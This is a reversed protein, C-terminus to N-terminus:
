EKFYVGKTEEYRRMISTPYDALFDEKTRCYKERFILRNYNNYGNEVAELISNGRGTAVALDWDEGVSVMKGDKLMADYLWLPKWNDYQIEQEENVKLNFARIAVGYRFHEVPSQLAMIKEFYESPGHAMTMETFLSDYGFRNSCFEGFYIGDDTVYLSIDFVFIGTHEKAMDYVKKPFAIRNIEDEIDTRIILNTGCGVQPGNNEGDGVNKTEIDITTYVPEGNWFVIQPTIEVPRILKEKIVIEGRSYEKENKDLTALIVLKSQEVDDPGVVTSVHDGESQLVLPVESEEVLKRAEEVTKVKQHPIIQIDTYHEEVFNMAEESEKELDFDATTNFIGNTLGYKLLQESYYWLNNRDCFIFYDDKNKVKRLAKVLKDAPYKKVIGEFEQLRKEKDEPKEKDGNRLEDKDQVHGVIVEKGELQLHHAVPMGSGDCTLLVWTKITDEYDM